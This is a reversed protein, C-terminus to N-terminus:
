RPSSSLDARFRLITIETHQINPEVFAEWHIRETRSMAALIPDPQDLAAFNPLSRVLFVRDPSEGVVTTFVELSAIGSKRAAPLLDSRLLNLFDPLTGPRLRYETLVSLPQTAEPNLSLDPHLLIASERNSAIPPVRRASLAHAQEATLGKDTYKGQDYHIFSTFPLVTLYRDSPGFTATSFIYCAPAGGRVVAACYDKQASEFQGSMGSHIQTEELLAHPSTSTQASASLAALALLVFSRM